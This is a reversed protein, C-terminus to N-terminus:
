LGELTGRAERPNLTSMIVHECTDVSGLGVRKFNLCHCLATQRVLVVRRLVAPYYCTRPLWTNDSVRVTSIRSGGLLEAEIATINELRALDPIGLNGIRSDHAPNNIVREITTFLRRRSEHALRELIRMRVALVGV